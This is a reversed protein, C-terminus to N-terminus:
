IKIIKREIKSKLFDLGSALSKCNKSDTALCEYVREKVNCINLKETVEKFSIADKKDQKSIYIIFPLDKLKEENILQNFIKAAEEIRNRDNSDVVFIFGDVNDYFLKWFKRYEEKGSLDWINYKTNETYLVELNNDNTPMPEIEKNFKLQYLITTKGANDLGLILLKYDEKKYGFFGFNKIRKLSDRIDESDENINNDDNKEEEKTINSIEKEIM